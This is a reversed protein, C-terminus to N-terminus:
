STRKMPTLQFKEGLIAYSAAVYICKLIQYQRQLNSPLGKLPEREFGFQKYYDSWKEDCMLYFTGGEGKLLDDMLLRSIGQRRYRHIVVGSAVEQIGNNHLKIQRVGVIQKEIEAVWFRRWNLNVPNLCAKFVLSMIKLRDEKSAPRIILNEIM